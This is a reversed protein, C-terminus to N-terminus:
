KGKLSVLLNKDQSSLHIKQNKLIPLILKQNISLHSGKISNIDRIKSITTKYKRAIGFLTDGKKVKHVVFMSFTVNSKFNQRFYSLKDYPIYVSYLKKGPPLFNYKFQHNFGKLSGLSMNAGKAINNLTNGGSIKVEVLTSNAGRNLFYEKNESQLSNPNNFALSMALIKKLYNRTELPLYKKDEDLLVELEDSDAEKIAKNLRGIGCNYAMAALYWKGTSNYLYQLYRIAAKTSKIPDLREDVYSDIRLGLEKATAPMLQWIGSAKKPSYARYLFESEAMALFLFEQPINAENLMQRAIGIFNSGNDFRTLLYAWKKTDSEILANDLKLVSLYESKVGFANLTSSSFRPQSQGLLADAFSPTLNNDLSISSQFVNALSTAVFLSTLIMHRIVFM